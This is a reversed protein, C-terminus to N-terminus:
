RDMNEVNARNRDFAVMPPTLVALCPALLPRWSHISANVSSGTGGFLKQPVSQLSLLGTLVIRKSWQWRIIPSTKPPSTSMSGKVRKPMAARRFAAVRNIASSRRHNLDREAGALRAVPLRPLM